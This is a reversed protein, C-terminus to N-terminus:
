SFMRRVERTPVITTAVNAACVLCVREGEEVAREKEERTPGIFFSALEGM